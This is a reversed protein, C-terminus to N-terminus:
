AFYYEITDRIVKANFVSIDDEYILVLNVCPRIEHKCYLAIKRQWKEFYEGSNMLGCHEWIVFKKTVPHRILFDPYLTNNNFVIGQEYYYELGKAKLQETIILETKSRVKEGDATEVKGEGYTSPMESLTLKVNNSNHLILSVSDQVKPIAKGSERLYAEKQDESFFSFYDQIIVESRCPIYDARKHLEFLKSSSYESIIKRYEEWNRLSQELRRRRHIKGMVSAVNDNRLYKTQRHSNNNFCHFFHYKGSAKKVSISGSPLTNIASQLAKIQSDAFSLIYFQLELYSHINSLISGKKILM